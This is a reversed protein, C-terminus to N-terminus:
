KFNKREKIHIIANKVFGRIGTRKLYFCTLYLYDFFRAIIYQLKRSHLKELNTKSQVGKKLEPIDRILNSAVKEVTFNQKVHKVANDICKRRLVEDDIAECITAFWDEPTNKALFGNTKDAIVYTYPETESYIGAFGALTYELYKNFYKCKTFDNTVLPALGLDFQQSQMYKRYEILPMGKIVEINMGNKFQELNPYLGVCTLSLRKGYRQCLKPLIPLIFKNFLEVHKPGAAYVIKIQEKKQPIFDFFETERVITDIKGVRKINFMNQYRNLLYQSSSVLVDAIELIDIMRNRRWPAFPIDSPLDLLDDDYMVAVFRGTKKAQLALNLSITDNPRIFFLVDAKNFENISLDQVRCFTDDFVGSAALFNMCERTISVTPMDREYLFAINSM